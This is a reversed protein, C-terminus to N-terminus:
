KSRYLRDLVKSRLAPHMFHYTVGEQETQSRTPWSAPDPEDELLRALFWARLLPDCYAFLARYLTLGDPRSDRPLTFSIPELEAARIVEGRDIGPAMW